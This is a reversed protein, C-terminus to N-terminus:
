VTEDVLESPHASAHLLRSRTPHPLLGALLGCIPFGGCAALVAAWAPAGARTTAVFLAVTAALAAALRLIAGLLMAPTLSRRVAIACGVIVVAVSAMAAMVAGTLGLRPILAINLAITCVTGALMAVFYVSPRRLAYVVRYLTGEVGKVLALAAFWPLLGAAPAFKEGLIPALVLPVLCYLGVALWGSLFLLLRALERVSDRFVPPDFVAARSLSPYAAIGLLYLPIMGYEVFKTDAAYLGVSANGLLYAIILFDTRAYFQSLLECGTFTSTSRLTRAIRRLDFHPVLSAGHSAANRASFAALLAGAVPYGVLALPLPAHGAFIIALALVIGGIRCGFDIVATAKMAQSAMAPVFFTRALDQGVQLSALEFIVSIRAHRGGGAALFLVFCLVALALQVCQASLIDTWLRRREGDGSARAYLATGYENFGSCAALSLFSALAFGYSYEGTTSPGFTRSIAVFVAFSALDGSIRGATLWFANKLVRM